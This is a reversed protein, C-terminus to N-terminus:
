IIEETNDNQKLNLRFLAKLNIGTQFTWQDLDGCLCCNLKKKYYLHMQLCRSHYIHGCPLKWYDWDTRQEMCSARCEYIIPEVIIEITGDSLWEKDGACWELAEITDTSTLETM